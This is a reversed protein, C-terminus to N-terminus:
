QSSAPMPAPVFGEVEDVSDAPAPQQQQQQLEDATKSIMKMLTNNVSKQLKLLPKLNVKTNFNNQKLNAELSNWFEADIKRLSALETFQYLASKNQEEMIINSREFRLV